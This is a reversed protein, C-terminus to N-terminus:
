NIRNDKNEKHIEKIVKRCLKNFGIGCIYGMSQSSLLRNKVAYECWKKESPRKNTDKMYKKLEAISKEYIEEQTKKSYEVM